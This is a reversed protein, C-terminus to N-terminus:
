RSEIAYRVLAGSVFTAEVMVERTEYACVLVPLSGEQRDNCSTPTGFVATVEEETMGKWVPLLTGAPSPLAASGAPDPRAVGGFGVDTEAEGIPQVYESLVAMLGGPTRIQAPVDRDYRVNFRSGKALRAFDIRRRAQEAQDRAYQQERRYQRNRDDRLRDLEREIRRREEPDDEAKLDEELDEERRSKAPPTVFTSPVSEDGFTGYGGGDLQFEIHKGRIKILTIRATEGRYISTGNEALRDAHEDWDIRPSREPYFDIGSSTAPMDIEIRVEQGVLARSLTDEDQAHAPGSVLLAFGLVFLTKRVM